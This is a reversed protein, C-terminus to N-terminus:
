GRRENYLMITIKAISKILIEMSRKRQNYIVENLGKINVKRM